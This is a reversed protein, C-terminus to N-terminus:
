LLDIGLNQYYLFKTINSHGLSSLTMTTTQSDGVPYSNSDMTHESQEDVVHRTGQPLDEYSQEMSQNSGASSGM